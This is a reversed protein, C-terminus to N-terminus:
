AEHQAVVVRLRGCRRRRPRRRPRGPAASTPALGLAFAWASRQIRATRASHKSQNSITPAAVELLDEPDIDLVVVGVARVPRKPQLRRIWGDSSGEGVLILRVSDISAVQETTEHVLVPL